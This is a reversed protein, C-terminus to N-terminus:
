CNAPKLFANLQMMTLTNNPTALATPEFGVGTTQRISLLTLYPNSTIKTRNEKGQLLRLKERVLIPAGTTSEKFDEGM